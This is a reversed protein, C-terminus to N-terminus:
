SRIKLAAVQGSDAPGKPAWSRLEEAATGINWHTLHRTCLRLTNPAQLDFTSLTQPELGPRITKSQLGFHLANGKYNHTPRLIQPEGPWGQFIM